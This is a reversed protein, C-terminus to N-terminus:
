IYGRRRRRPLTQTAAPAMEYEDIWQLRIERDPRMISADLDAFEPSLVPQSWVNGGIALSVLLVLITFFSKRM